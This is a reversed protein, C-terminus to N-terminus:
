IFNLKHNQTRNFLIISEQRPLLRRLNEQTKQRLGALQTSEGSAMLLAETFFSTDSNAFSREEETSSAFLAMPADGVIFQEARDIMGAAHCCDLIVTLAVERNLIDQVIGTLEDDTLFFDRFAAGINGARFELRQHYLVLFEDPINSGSEGQGDVSSFDGHGCYYFLIERSRSLAPKDFFQLVNEKTAKEDQLCQISWNKDVLKRNMREVNFGSFSLPTYWGRQLTKYVNGPAVLLAQKEM